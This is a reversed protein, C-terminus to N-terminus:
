LRVSRPEWRLPQLPRSRIEACKPRLVGPARYCCHPGLVPCPECLRPRMLLMADVSSKLAATAAAAADGSGASWLGMVQVVQPCSDEFRASDRSCVAAVPCVEKLPTRRSSPKATGSPSSSISRSASPLEPPRAPRPPRAAAAALRAAATLPLPSESSLGM